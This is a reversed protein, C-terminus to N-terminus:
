HAGGEALLYPDIRLKRSTPARFVFGGTAQHVNAQIRSFRGTSFYHQSNRDYGYVAEAAIWRNLKYRYGVLFGGTNTSRETTGLGTTDKTFFGTGELSIESPSEQASAGIGLLLTASVLMIAIKRMGLGERVFNRKHKAMIWATLSGFPVLLVQPLAIQNIACLMRGTPSFLQALANDILEGCKEVVPSHESVKLTRRHQRPM